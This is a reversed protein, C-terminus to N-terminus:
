HVNDHILVNGSIQVWMGPESNAPRLKSLTECYVGLTNNNKAGYFRGFPCRKSELFCQGHNTSVPKSSSKDEPVKIVGNYPNNNQNSMSTLFECKM